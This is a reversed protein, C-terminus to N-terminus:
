RLVRLLRLCLFTAGGTRGAEGALWVAPTAEVQAGGAAALGTLGTAGVMTTGGVVEGLQSWVAAEGAL